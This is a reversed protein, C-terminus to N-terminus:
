TLVAELAEVARSADDKSTYHVLSLRVVGDELDLGLAKILRYAYFHGHNTAIKHQTLGRVIEASSQKASFFALTPARVTYDATQPGVLMVDAKALLYDVILKSQKQEQEQFLVSVDKGRAQRNENPADFHHEYVADYYDAIGSACAIQAHQPGTPTLRYRLSKDENFFHGQNALTRLWEKKVYMLGLHPGYTKYLSFFYADVGLAKLDPLAHPAYSVGDVVVKAGVNHCLQVATKIDIIQAAINSCHTFCALKTNETLLEKLDDLDLLGTQPDVQWVKITAGTRDLRNWAGVNAEHDQNTIIVEDGAKLEPAIAQAMVYSNISTSPGLMLEQEAVGLMEALLRYSRDMAEGAEASPTSPGYPQVRTATNYHNLKELVQKAVYSGGANEFFAWEKAHSSSFAPFQTRIFSVDLQPM